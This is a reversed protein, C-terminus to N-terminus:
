SILNNKLTGLDMPKRVVDLYDVLGLGIYDVPTTFETGYKHKKCAEVVKLLKSRLEKTIEVHAVRSVLEEEPM